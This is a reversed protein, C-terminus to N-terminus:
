EASSRELSAQLIKADDVLRQLRPGSFESPKESESIPKKLSSLSTVITRIQRCLEMFRDHEGLFRKAAPGLGILTPEVSHVVWPEFDTIYSTNFLRLGGGLSRLHDQLMLTIEEIRRVYEDANQSTPMQLDAYQRQLLAFRTRLDVVRTSFQDFMADVDTAVLTNTELITQIRRTLDPTFLELESAFAQSEPLSSIYSLLQMDKSHAESIASDSSPGSVLGHISVCDLTLSALDHIFRTNEERMATGEIVDLRQVPCCGLLACYATLESTWANTGGPFELEPRSSRPNGPLPGRHEFYVHAPFLRVLFDILRRRFLGGSVVDDETIKQLDPYRLERLLAAIESLTPNNM